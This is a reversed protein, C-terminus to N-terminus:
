RHLKQRIYGENQMEKIVHQEKYKCTNFCEEVFFNFDTAADFVSNNQNLLREGVEKGVKCKEYCYRIDMYVGNYYEINYYVIYIYIINYLVLM